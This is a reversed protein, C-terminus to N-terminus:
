RLLALAPHGDPLEISQWRPDDDDEDQVKHGAAVLADMDSFPGLLWMDQDRMVVIYDRMANGKQFRTQSKFRIPAVWWVPKVAM